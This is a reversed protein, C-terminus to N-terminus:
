APVQLNNLSYNIQQLAQQLRAPQINSENLLTIWQMQCAKLQFIDDSLQIKEILKKAMLGCYRQLYSCMFNQLEEFDQHIFTIKLSSETHKDAETIPNAQVETSKTEVYNQSTAIHKPQSLDTIEPAHIDKITPILLEVPPSSLENTIDRQLHETYEGIYQILQMDVLQKLLAPEAIRQQHQIQMQNFDDSGILLLLRRQRANLALQRDKLVQFGLETKQYNFM